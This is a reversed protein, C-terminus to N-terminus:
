GGIYRIYGAKIASGEDEFGRLRTVPIELTCPTGFRHYVKAKSDGVVPCIVCGPDRTERYNRLAQWLYNRDMEADYANENYDWVLSVLAIYWLAVIAIIVTAILRRIKM